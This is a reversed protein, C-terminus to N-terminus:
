KGARGQISTLRHAISQQYKTAHPGGAPRHYRGAVTIWDAGDASHEHLIQAAVALNRYPDFLQCPASVRHGQYGVNIGALGVDIRTRANRALERTLVRCAENRNLMRYPQGAVNLTWPWPVFRGSWRMGSEQLAIAYLLAAPVRAKHAAIEYAVPVDAAVAPTYWAILIVLAIRV